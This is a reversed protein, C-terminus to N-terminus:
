LQTGNDMFGQAEFYQMWSCWLLDISAAQMPLSQLVIQTNMQGSLGAALNQTHDMLGTTACFANTVVREWNWIDAPLYGHDAMRTCEVCTKFKGQYVQFM